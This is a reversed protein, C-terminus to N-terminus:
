RLQRKSHLVPTTMASNVVTQVVAPGVKVLEAINNGGLRNRAQSSPRMTNAMSTPLQSRGSAPVLGSRSNQWV